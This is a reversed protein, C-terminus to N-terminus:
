PQFLGFTLSVLSLRKTPINHEASSEGEGVLSLRYLVFALCGASLPLCLSLSVSLCLSLPVSLCLSLSVSLANCVQANVAEATAAFMRGTSPRISATSRKAAARMKGGLSGEAERAKRNARRGRAFMAWMALMAGLQKRAAETQRLLRPNVRHRERVREPERQRESDRDRQPRAQGLPLAPVLEDRLAAARAAARAREASLDGAM